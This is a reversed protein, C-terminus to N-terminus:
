TPMAGAPPQSSATRGEREFRSIPSQPNPERGKLSAVLVILPSLSQKIGITM